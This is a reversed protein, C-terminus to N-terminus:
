PTPTRTLPDPEPEPLTRHYPEHTPSPPRHEPTPTRPDHNPNTTRPEHNPTRPENFKTGSLLTHQITSENFFEQLM